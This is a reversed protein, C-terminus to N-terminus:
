PRFIQFKHGGYGSMTIGNECKEGSIGGVGVDFGCRFAKGEVVFFASGEGNPKLQIDTIETEMPLSDSFIARDMNDGFDRLIGGIWEEKREVFQSWLPYEKGNVIM